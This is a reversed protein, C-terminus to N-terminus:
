WGPARLTSLAPRKARTEVVRWALHLERSARASHIGDHTRQTTPIQGDRLTTTAPSQAARDHPYHSSPGAHKDRPRLLLYTTMAGKGKVKIRGRSRLEYRKRLQEYARQTVQITGPLAHSEMRSPTNVTNGWLDYIFKARGIVGAVVPGTDIGIRVELALGTEEASRAVAPGWQSRWIPSQRPTVPGRCRFGAPRWTPM